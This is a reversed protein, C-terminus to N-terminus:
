RDPDFVRALRAVFGAEALHDVILQPSTRAPDFTALAWTVYTDVHVQEVGPCGILAATVQDPGGTAACGCLDLTLDRHEPM